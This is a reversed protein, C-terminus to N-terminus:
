HQTYVSKGEWKVYVNNEIKREVNKRVDKILFLFFRVANHTNKHTHARTKKEWESGDEYVYAYISQKAESSSPFVTIIDNTKPKSRTRKKRENETVNMRKVNAKSRIRNRKNPSTTVKIMRKLQSKISNNGTTQAKNNCEHSKSKATINFYNCVIYESSFMCGDNWYFFHNSHLFLILLLFFLLLFSLLM